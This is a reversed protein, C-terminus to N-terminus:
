FAAHQHWARADRERGTSFVHDIMSIGPGDPSRAEEAYGLAMMERAVASVDEFKGTKAL